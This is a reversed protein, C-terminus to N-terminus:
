ARAFAMVTASSLTLLVMGVIFKARYPLTFRFIRLGQQFSEKTLKVKPVDAGAQGSTNM